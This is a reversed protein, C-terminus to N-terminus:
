HSKFNKSQFQNNSNVKKYFAKFFELIVEFEKKKLNIVIQPLIKTIQVQIM